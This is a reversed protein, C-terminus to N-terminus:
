RMLWCSFSITILGEREMGIWNSKMFLRNCSKLKVIVANISDYPESCPNYISVRQLYKFRPTFTYMLGYLRWRGRFQGSSISTLKRGTSSLRPPPRSSQIRTWWLVSITKFTWGIAFLFLKVYNTRKDSM